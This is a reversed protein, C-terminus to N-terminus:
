KKRELAKARWLPWARKYDQVPASAKVEAADMYTVKNSLLLAQMQMRASQELYISRGVARPLDEGTVVSGHGRMLAASKGALTKALSAGLQPNRVLLDSGKKLKRIEFNPLGEGIFSAMHWLARMKVNTVSFPIISPSHNHVVSMVDPRARYIESHIYRESVSEGKRAPDVPEGDLGYELIDERGVTEPAIARALLFRKPNEPSRISVHGYADIVGHGALIRNAAVLDDLLTDDM